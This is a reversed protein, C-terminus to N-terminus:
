YLWKVSLMKSLVRTLSLKINLALTVFKSISIIQPRITPCSLFNKNIDDLWPVILMNNSLFSRKDGLKFIELWTQQTNKELWHM